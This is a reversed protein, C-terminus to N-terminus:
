LCAKREEVRYFYRILSTRYRALTGANQASLVVPQHRFLFFDELLGTWLQLAVDFASVMVAIKALEESERIGKGVAYMGNDLAALACGEEEDLIKTIKLAQEDM